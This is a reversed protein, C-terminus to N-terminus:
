SQCLDDNQGKWKLGIDRVIAVFCMCFIFKHLM